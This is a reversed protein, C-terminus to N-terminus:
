YPYLLLLLMRNALNVTHVRVIDYYYPARVKVRPEYLSKMYMIYGDKTTEAKKESTRM